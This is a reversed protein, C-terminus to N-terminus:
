TRRKKASKIGIRDKKQLRKSSKKLDETISKRTGQGRPSRKGGRQGKPGKKRVWWPKKEGVRRDLLRFSPRIPSSRRERTDWGGGV